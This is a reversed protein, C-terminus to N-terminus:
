PPVRADVAPESKPHHLYDTLNWCMNKKEPNESNPLRFSV